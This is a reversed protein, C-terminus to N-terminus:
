RVTAAAMSALRRMVGAAEEPAFGYPFLSAEDVAVEPRGGLKLLEDLATKFHVCLLTEATSARPNVRGEGIPEFGLGDRFVDAHRLPVEIVGYDCAWVAGTFLYAAHFLCALARKPVSNMDVSLNVFECVRSGADRLVSTEDHYLDDAALGRESDLRVSLSGVFVSDGHALFTYLHPDRKLGAAGAELAPNRPHLGDVRRDEFMRALRIKLTGRPEGEGFRAPAAGVLTLSRFRTPRRTVPGSYITNGTLSETPWVGGPGKNSSNAM